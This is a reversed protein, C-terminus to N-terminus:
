NWPTYTITGAGYVPQTTLPCGDRVRITTDVHVFLYAAGEPFAVHTSACFDGRALSARNEALVAWGSPVVGFIDDHLTLAGGPDGGVRFCAAGQGIDEEYACAAWVAGPDYRRVQAADAAAPLALLLILLPVLALRPM